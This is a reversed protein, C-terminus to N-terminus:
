FTADELALVHTGPAGQGGWFVVRVIISFICKYQFFSHSIRKCMRKARNGLLSHALFLTHMKLFLHTIIIETLCTKIM